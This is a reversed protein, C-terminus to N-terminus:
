RNLRPREQEVDSLNEDRFCDIATRSTWRLWLRAVRELWAFDGDYNATLSQIQWRM